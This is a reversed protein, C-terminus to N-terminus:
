DEDFFPIEALVPIGLFNEAENRNRLRKDLIFKLFVFGASLAMGGLLGILVNTNRNPSVAARNVKPNDVTIMNEIKLKEKMEAYFVNLTAEVIQKSKVPDETKAVISIIQTDTGNSVTLAAKIEGVSSLKLEEAVKTLITEGQLIMVYNNVLLNNSNVTTNDVVGQESVKPTLYITAKSAYKKDIFFVTINLALIAGIIGSFIILRLNKKLLHYLQALDIEVEDNTEKNELTNM